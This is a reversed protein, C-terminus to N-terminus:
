AYTIVEQVNMTPLSQEVYSKFRGDFFANLSDVDPFIGTISLSLDLTLVAEVHTSDLTSVSISNFTLTDPDIQQEVQVQDLIGTGGINTIKEEVLSNQQYKNEITFTFIIQTPAPM